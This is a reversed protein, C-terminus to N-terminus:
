SSERECYYINEVGYGTGPSLLCEKTFTFGHNRICLELAAPNIAVDPIGADWWKSESSRLLVKDVEPGDHPPVFLVICVRSVAHMLAAHLVATWQENHDLVHRLMIGDCVPREPLPNRLDDLIDAYGASGDVGIYHASKVFSKFRAKGCGWDEVTWDPRDLFAAARQYSGLSADFPSDDAHRWKGRMDAM